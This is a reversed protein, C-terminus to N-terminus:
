NICAIFSPRHVSRPSHNQGPTGRTPIAQLRQVQAQYAKSELQLSAILQEQKAAATERNSDHGDIVCSIGGPRTGFADDRMGRLM